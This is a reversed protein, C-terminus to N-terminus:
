LMVLFSLRKGIFTTTKEPSHIAEIGMIEIGNSYLWVSSVNNLSSIIRGVRHLLHHSIFVDSKLISKFSPVIRPYTSLAFSTHRVLMRRYVEQVVPSPSGLYFEVDAMTPLSDLASWTWGDMALLDQFTNIPRTKGPVTLHSILSGRYAATIIICYM